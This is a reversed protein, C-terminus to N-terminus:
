RVIEGGGAPAAPDAHQKDKYLFYPLGFLTFLFLLIFILAAAICGTKASSPIPEGSEAYTSLIKEAVAETESPLADAAPAPEATGALPTLPPPQAPELPTAAASPQEGSAAEAISADLWDLHRKVLDRQTRLESITLSRM